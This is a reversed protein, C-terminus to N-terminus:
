IASTSRMRPRYRGPAAGRPVVGFFGRPIM